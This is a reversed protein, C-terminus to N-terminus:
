RLNAQDVGPILMATLVGTTCAPHRTESLLPAREEVDAPQDIGISSLHIAANVFRDHLGRIANFPHFGKRVHQQIQPSSEVAASVEEAQALGASMLVVLGIIRLM